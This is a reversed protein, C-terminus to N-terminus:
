TSCVGGNTDTCNTNEVLINNGEEASGSPPIGQQFIVDTAYRAEPFNRFLTKDEHLKRMKFYKEKDQVMHKYAIPGAIDVFKSIMRQFTLTNNKFMSSMFDWSKGSKYVILTM